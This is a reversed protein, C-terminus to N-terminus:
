RRTAMPGPLRHGQDPVRRGHDRPRRSRSTPSTRPSPRPGTGRRPIRDSVGKILAHFLGVIMVNALLHDDWDRGTALNAVVTGVGASGMVLLTGGVFGMGYVTAAMGAAGVFAGLLAAHGVGDYWRRNPDPDLLNGTIQGAAFGAAGAAAGVILVVALGPLTFPLAAILLAAGSGSRSGWSSASSCAGSRLALRV